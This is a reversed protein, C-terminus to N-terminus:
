LKKSKGKGKESSFYQLVKPTCKTFAVLCIYLVKWLFFQIANSPDFLSTADFM